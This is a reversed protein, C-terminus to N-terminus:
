NLDKAGTIRKMGSLPLEVFFTTGKGEESTFWARGDAREVIAKVIYLGLGTGETEMGRANDARFLKEFIKGQADKPIGIGTDAVAIRMMETKPNESSRAISVSIGGGEPTYKVANSLFNQFIIRMLKPDVNMKPFDPEYIKEIVHKKEVIKVSLEMLVSECIEIIDTEKPEVAFSGLDIRSVNLLSNVLDIMRRNSQYVEKLYTRQDDNLPGLKESVLIESYWRIASLPTRLQHSALSVFETKAKDIEREKTIDRFVVIAGLINGDLFIPSSTAAVPFKSGDPRAYYAVASIKEGELLTRVVPRMETPIIEEHDNEEAPFADTFQKGICQSINKGLMSAAQENMVIITGDRDTALLGDGISALLADSKVKERRIEDNARSLEDAQGKLVEEVEKLHAIDTTSGSIRLPEHRKNFTARGRSLVWKYEGAKTKTRYESRFYPAKGEFHLALAQEVIVLDDQHILRLWETPDNGLGGRQYGFMELWRPSFAIHKESIDWDWLGDNVGEVVLRFMENEFILNRSITRARFYLAVIWFSSVVALLSLASGAVLYAPSSKRLFYMGGLAVILVLPPFLRWLVVAGKAQAKEVRGELINKPYADEQLVM